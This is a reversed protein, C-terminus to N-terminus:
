ATAATPASEVGSRSRVLFFVGAILMWLLLLAMPIFAWGLVAVAVGFIVGVIVMWRPFLLARGGAISATVLFLGVTAMGYILLATFGVHELNRLLDADRPVPSDGFEVGAPVASLAAGFVGLLAAFVSGSVFAVTSVWDGGPLARVRERFAGLFLLFAIVAAALVFAGCIIEQRNGSDRFYRLWEGNSANEDPTDTMLIIGVVYLVAFLIATVGGWRARARAGSQEMVM